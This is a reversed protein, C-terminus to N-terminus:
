LAPGDGTPDTWKKSMDNAPAAAGPGAPHLDAALRETAIQLKLANEYAPGNVASKLQRVKQRRVDGGARLVGLLQEALLRDAAPRPQTPTVPRGVPHCCRRRSSARTAPTPQPHDM